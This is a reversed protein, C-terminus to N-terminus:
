IKSLLCKYFNYYNKSVLKSNYKRKSDYYANSSLMEVKKKNLILKNVKYISRNTYNTLRLGNTKNVFDKLGYTNSIISFKKTFASEIISNGFGERRSLLINCDCANYFFNSNKQYGCYKIKHKVQKPLKDLYKKFNMEDRGVLLLFINNNIKLLKSFFNITEHIGKDVNLRGLYLFTFCNKKINFKLRIKKRAAFNLNYVNPDVGCISGDGINLIKNKKVIKQNILFKRQSVGDCLIHTSINSIMKDCFILFNKLFGKKTHWVQGSFIHVRLPVNCLFSSFIGLLAAKPMLTQVMSIKNKKLFLYIKFMVFIDNLINIKRSIPIEFKNIKKSKIKSKNINKGLLFIEYNKSLNLIHKKYFVDFNYYDTTIFCIKKKM